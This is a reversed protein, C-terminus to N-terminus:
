LSSSFIIQFQHTQKARANFKSLLRASELDTAMKAIKSKVLQREILREGFTSRECAYEVALDLAAQGIGLAQAAVGIRGIQMQSMAIKFGDGLQGLLNEKPVRVNSLLIDCTSTARIGMKEYKPSVTVGTADMPVLFGSIGKSDNSRNTSAFVVAAKAECGSTVWAKVGNLM